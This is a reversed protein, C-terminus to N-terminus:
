LPINKKILLEYFKIGAAYGNLVEQPIRYEVDISIFHEYEGKAKEIGYKSYTHKCRMLGKTFQTIPVYNKAKEMGKGQWDRLEIIDFSESANEIDAINFCPIWFHGDPENAVAYFVPPMEGKQDYYDKSYQAYNVYNKARM